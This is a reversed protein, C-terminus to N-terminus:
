LNPNLSVHQPPLLQAMNRLFVALRRNDIEKGLNERLHDVLDVIEAVLLANHQQVNRFKLDLAAYGENMRRNIAHM